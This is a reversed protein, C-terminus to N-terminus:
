RNAGDDAFSSSIFCNKLSAFFAITASSFTIQIEPLSIAISLVTIFQVNKRIDDRRICPDGSEVLPSEQVGSRKTLFSM